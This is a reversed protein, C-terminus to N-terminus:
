SAGVLPNLRGVAKLDTIRRTKSAEVAVGASMFLLAKGAAHTLIHYLSAKVGLATGLSFGTFVLGLHMITSYAILRKVDRQILMMIPAFVASAAGIFSLVVSFYPSLHYFQSLPDYVGFITYLFRISAYAGANVVLGSLVASIPTPAAPHADPLWFHNPFVGAKFTFTWLSLAVIVAVAGTINGWTFVDIFQYFYQYSHRLLPRTHAAVFGMTLNGFSAYTTVAAVFYLLGAIAGFFAYKFSAEVAERSSRYYAVLGYCTIGLVELMVFLNFVDGTYYIGLLGAEAGLLLSYYYPTGPDEGLYWYSYAVIFVIVLATYTALLASLADVEYVIGLPPPWGGMRYVIPTERSIIYHQVHLTLLFVSVTTVLSVGHFFKVSRVKLYILPLSFAVAVLLAPAASVSHM